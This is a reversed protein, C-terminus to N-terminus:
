IVLIGAMTLLVLVACSGAVYAWHAAFRTETGLKTRAGPHAPLRKLCRKWDAIARNLDGNREHLDGRLYYVQGANPNLRISLDYLEM